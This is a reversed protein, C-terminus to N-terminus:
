NKYIIKGYKLISELFGSRNNNKIILKPEIDTNVERCLSYLRASVDLFDDDLEDVVIAIDIDSDKHETGKAYSGYLIIMNVPLTKKVLEAYRNIANDIQSDM